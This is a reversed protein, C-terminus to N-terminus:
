KDVKVLQELALKSVEIQGYKILIKNRTLTKRVSNPLERIAAMQDDSNLIHTLEPTYFYVMNQFSKETLTMGMLDHFKKDLTKSAAKKVEDLKADAISQAMLLEPDRTRRMSKIDRLLERRRIGINYAIQKYSLNQRIGFLIEQKRDEKVSINKM